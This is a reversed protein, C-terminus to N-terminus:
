DDTEQNTINIIPCKACCQLYVNGTHYCMIQSNNHVFKHGQQKMHKPTFIVGM